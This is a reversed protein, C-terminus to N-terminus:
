EESSELVAREQDLDRNLAAETAFKSPYRAKLKAINIRQVREQSVRLRNRMVAMYWELDGLEEVANTVDFRRGEFCSACIASLFEAAETFIGMASHIMDASPYENDSDDGVNMRTSPTPDAPLDRLESGYFVARKLADVEDGIAIARRLVQALQGPSPGSGSGDQDINFQLSLTRLVDDEYETYTM